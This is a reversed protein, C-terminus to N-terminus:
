KLQYVKERVWAAWELPKRSGDFTQWPIPDGVVIRFTKGQGRYLEDPLLIMALPFKKNIGLWDAVKDVRYFRKSNEGFFRVPVIDRHYQVSKQIFTKKWPVDQVIGDIKRSCKGAPFVGIQNSAAFIADTGTSLSRSQVGGTKNVGVFMSSLGKLYMLFDNVQIKIDGDFYGGFVSIMSLADIGGLPHNEAITYYGHEKDLKELGEVELRVNLYRLCEVAFDVGEWGQKFFENMFDEHLLKRLWNVVFGPVNGFRSRVISGVDLTFAYESSQM